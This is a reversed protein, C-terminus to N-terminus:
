LAGSRAATRADGGAADFCRGMLADLQRYGSGDVGLGAACWAGAGDGRAGNGVGGADAARWRRAAHRALLPLAGSTAVLRALSGDGSPLASSATIVLAPCVHALHQAQAGPASALGRAAADLLDGGGAAQLASAAGPATAALRTVVKVARALRSSRGATDGSESLGLLARVAVAGALVAAHLAGPLPAAGLRAGVACAQSALTHFPMPMATVAAWLATESLDPGFAGTALLQATAAFDRLAPGTPATPSLAAGPNAPWRTLARAAV